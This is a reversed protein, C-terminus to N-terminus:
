HKLKRLIADKTWGIRLHRRCLLRWSDYPTYIFTAYKIIKSYKTKLTNPNITDNNTIYRLLKSIFRIYPMDYWYDLLFMGLSYADTSNEPSTFRGALNDPRNESAKSIETAWGFDILSVKCKGNVDAIILNSPLFDRHAVNKQSLASLLQICGKIFSRVYKGRQHNIDAFFTEFDVGRMRSIELITEEHELDYQKRIIKPVNPIDALLELYNAENEILWNTGIKVFSDKKEYVRSHYKFNNEGNVYLRKLLQGHRLAYASYALHDPNYVVTIDNPRVYEYRNSQLFSDLQEVCVKCNHNYSQGIAEAYKQLKSPYDEKVKWKQIYAHYLLSYYQNEADPTYFLDKTLVRSNLIDEQWPQDYYNDGIYRFDFPVDIGGIKITHYVRYHEPFVKQAGTLYSMWNKNECLIDIDGHGEVTYQNPLCEHNRMVVYRITNNLVYFFNEISPYGDVGQCNQSFTEEKGDLSYHSCFDKTNYGFMLTLDHNTEWADDSSHIKHGGGTLARYRTKKDFMRTNVKREGSSTTRLEFKPHEDRLIVVTFDEDGCHEVKGQLLKRYSIPDLQYQSHAYFVMYNQLFKDKDWHGRFVKLIEFDNKLDALIEDKYDKGKSWIVLIHIISSGM